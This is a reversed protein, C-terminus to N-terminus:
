ESVSTDKEEDQRLAALQLAVTKKTNAKILAQTNLSQTLAAVQVSLNAQLTQHATKNLEPKQTNALASFSFLTASSLLAISMIKRCTTNMTQREFISLYYYDCPLQM